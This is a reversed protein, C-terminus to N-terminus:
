RRSVRVGDALAQLVDNMVPARANRFRFNYQALGAVGKRSRAQIYARRWRRVASRSRRGVNGGLGRGLRYGPTMGAVYKRALSQRAGGAHWLRAQGRGQRRAARRPPGAFDPYEEGVLYITSRDLQRWFLALDGRARRGALKLARQTIWVIGPLPEDGLQPRGDTIGHLVGRIFGRLRAGKPGAVEHPIEDLQWTVVRQRRNRRSRIRDRFRQGLELGWAYRASPSLRMLKKMRPIRGRRKWRASGPLLHRQAAPIKRSRWFVSKSVLPFIPALRGPVKPRKGRPPKPESPKGSGWYNGYYLPTGAPLGSREIARVLRPLHRGKWYSLIVAPKQDGDCPASRCAQPGTPNAPPPPTPAIGPAPPTEDPVAPPEVAPAPVPLPPLDDPVEQAMAPPAATLAYVLVCWTLARSVDGSGGRFALTRV